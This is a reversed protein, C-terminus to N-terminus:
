SKPSEDSTTGWKASVTGLGIVSVLSFFLSPEPVTTNEFGGFEVIYARNFNGPLDNWGGDGPFEPLFEIVAFNENEGINNPEFIGGWNSYENNVPTGGCCIGLGQWFQIGAEPGTEWIWQGEVAMDSAGIWSASVASFFNTFIFNQEEHSTITALYGSEGMFTLNEAALRADSWSLEEQVVTYWHGNEPNFIQSHAPDSNLLVQALAMVPSVSCVLLFNRSM